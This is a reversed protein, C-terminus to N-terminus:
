WTPSPSSEWCRSATTRPPKRALWARGATPIPRWITWGPSCTESRPTRWCRAYPRGNLAGFPIGAFREAGDLGRLQELATDTLVVRYRRPRSVLGGAGPLGRGSRSGRAHRRRAAEAAETVAADNATQAVAAWLGVISFLDAPDAMDLALQFTPRLEAPLAQRVAGVTCPRDIPGLLVEHPQVTM